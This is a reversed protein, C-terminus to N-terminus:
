NLHMTDFIIRTKAVTWSTTAFKAELRKEQEHMNDYRVIVDIKTLELPNHWTAIFHKLCLKYIFLCAVLNSTYEKSQTHENADMFFDKMKWCSFYIMFDDLVVFDVRRLEVDLVESLAALFYTVTLTIDVFHIIITVNVNLNSLYKSFWKDLTASGVKRTWHIHTILVPAFHSTRRHQRENQKYLSTSKKKWDVM